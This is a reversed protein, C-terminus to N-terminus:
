WCFHGQCVFVNQCQVYLALLDRRYKNLTGDARGNNRRQEIFADIESPSITSRVAKASTKLLTLTVTLHLLTAFSFKSRPCRLSGEYDHADFDPCRM